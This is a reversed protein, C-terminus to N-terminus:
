NYKGTRILRMMKRIRRLAWARLGVKAGGPTRTRARHHDLLQYYPSNYYPIIAYYSLQQRFALQNVCNFEKEVRYAHMKYHNGFQTPMRYFPLSYQQALLSLIAQDRRHERFDPLNKKGCTNPEDSIIRKDRCYSLWQEVFRIAQPCRRFLAFAGDCHLAQWYIESDCDMLVFCDRKVWAANRDNGNGFLVIPEENACIRILPELSDIIEIGSDSYIVVDGEEVARLAELIIYPKWLWFGMGTPQDLIEKNEEYFSTTRIEEFDYSRIEHIGFRKGSENLRMRSEEYAKNSLNVLITRM